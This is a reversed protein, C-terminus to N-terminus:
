DDFEDFKDIQNLFLFSKVLEGPAVKDETAKLWFVDPIRCGMPLLYKALLIMLDRSFVTLDPALLALWLIFIGENYLYWLGLEQDTLSSFDVSRGCMRRSKFQENIIIQYYYTDTGDGAFDIRSSVYNTYKLCDDCCGHMILVPNGTCLEFTCGPGNCDFTNLNYETYELASDTTRCTHADVHGSTVKDACEESCFMVFYGDTEFSTECSLLMCQKAYNLRRRKPPPADTKEDM